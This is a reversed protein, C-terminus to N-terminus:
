YATIRAPGVNYGVVFAHAKFSWTEGIGLDNQNALATGVLNGSLDYLKFTVQVSRFSRGCENRLDGLVTTSYQDRDAGISSVTLCVLANESQFSAASTGIRASSSGKNILSSLAGMVLFLGVFGLCGLLIPSRKRTIQAGCAACFRNTDQNAARCKPCDM